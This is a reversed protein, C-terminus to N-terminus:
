EAEQYPLERQNVIDRCELESFNFEENAFLLQVDYEARTEEDMSGLIAMIGIQCVERVIPSFKKKGIACLASLSYYLDNDFPITARKIQSEEIPEAKLNTLFEEISDIMANIETVDM